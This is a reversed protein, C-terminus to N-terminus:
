IILQTDILKDMNKDVSKMFEKVIIPVAKSLMRKFDSDRHKERATHIYAEIASQLDADKELLRMYVFKDTINVTAYVCGKIRTGHFDVYEKLERFTCTKKGKSYFHTIFAESEKKTAPRTQTEGKYVEAFYVVKRKYDLFVFGKNSM